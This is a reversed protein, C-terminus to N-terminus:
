ALHELVSVASRAPVVVGSSINEIQNVSLYAFVLELDETQKQM